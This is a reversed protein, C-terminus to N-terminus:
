GPDSVSDCGEYTAEARGAADSMARRLDVLNEPTPVLQAAAHVLWREGPLRPPRVRPHLGEVIIANALARASDESGCSFRNVFVSPEPEGRHM